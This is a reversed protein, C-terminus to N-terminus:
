APMWKGSEYRGATFGKLPALTATNKDSCASLRIWADNLPGGVLHVATKPRSRNPRAVKVSMRAGVLGTYACSANKKRPLPM